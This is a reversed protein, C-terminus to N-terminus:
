GLKTYRATYTYQTLRLQNALRFYVANAIHSLSVLEKVSGFSTEEMGLLGSIDGLQLFGRKQERMASSGSWSIDVRLSITCSFSQLSSNYNKRHRLELSAICCSCWSMVLM